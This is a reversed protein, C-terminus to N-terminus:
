VRGLRYDVLLLPSSSHFVDVPCLHVLSAVVFFVCTLYPAICRCCSGSSVLRGSLWQLM